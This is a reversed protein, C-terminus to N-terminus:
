FPVDEESEGKVYDSSASEKTEKKDVFSFGDVIVYYRTKKKGDEKSEYTDARLRGEVLIGSGKKFYKAMVDAANGFVSIDVFTTREKREGNATKLIENVAILTKGVKTTKGNKEHTAVEVDRTLNGGLIVKNFNM